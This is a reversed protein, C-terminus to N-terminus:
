FSYYSSWYGPLGQCLGRCSLALHLRSFSLFSDSFYNQLFMYSRNGTGAKWDLVIDGPKSLEGIISQMMGPSKERPGRWPVDGNMQQSDVDIFNFIADSETINLDGHIVDSKKTQFSFKSPPEGGRVFVRIWFRNTQL